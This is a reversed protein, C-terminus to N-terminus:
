GNIQTPCFIDLLHFYFNKISIVNFSERVITNLPLNLSGQQLLYYQKEKKSKGSAQLEKRWAVNLSISTVLFGMQFGSFIFPFQALPFHLGLVWIHLVTELAHFLFSVHWDELLLEVSEKSGYKINWAKLKSKVEDLLGLVSCKYYHFELLPIFKKGSINNIRFFLAPKLIYSLIIPWIDSMHCKLFM